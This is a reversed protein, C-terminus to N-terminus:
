SANLKKHVNNIHKTLNGNYKASHNCGPYPCDFKQTGHAVKKHERLISTYSTSFECMPCHQNKIGLHVGNTHEDLGQKISFRKPCHSCAYNKIKLHMREYHKEVNRKRLSTYTCGPHHCPIKLEEQEQASTHERLCHNKFSDKQVFSASCIDCVYMVRDTRHSIRSHTQLHIINTFTKECHECKMTKQEEHHVIVHSRLGNIAKFSKGCTDCQFPKEDKHATQVHLKLKSKGEFIKGCITCSYYGGNPKDFHAGMIHYHLQRSDRRQFTTCYLCVLKDEENVKCHKILHKALEKITSASYQCIDCVKKLDSHVEDEHKRRTNLKVFVKECHHCKYNKKKESHKSQDCVLHSTEDKHEEKCHSSLAEWSSFTTNCNECRWDSSDDSQDDSPPFLDDNADILHKQDELFDGNEGSYKLSGDDPEIKVEAEIPEEKVLQSQKKAEQIFEKANSCRSALVIERIDPSLGILFHLLVERDFSVDKIDDTVLYQAQVCREYFDDISEENNQQLQKRVEVKETISLKPSFSNLLLAKMETWSKSSNQNMASKVQDSVRSACLKIVDNEDLNHRSAYDDIASLFQGCTNSPNQLTSPQGDFYPIEEM